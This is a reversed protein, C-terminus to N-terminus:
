APAAASENAVPWDLQFTAGQGLVSTVEVRGGHAQTLHKVISLGLGSGGADRSRDKHVRYFREFIHPLDSQPIGPGTDAIRVVVREGAAEASVGIRLGTPPGYKLANELLNFLVQDLRGPDAALPPLDPPLQAVVAAQKEAITPELREVVRALADALPVPSIELGGRGHEFRSITLLDEVLANLRLGHKQMVSLARQTLAEDDLGDPELLTELYGNLIALPTRLEHSVNAVFERRVAELNKLETIDHLVLIAGMSRAQDPPRLGVATLDFHKRAYRSDAGRVDLEVVRATTEGAIARAVADRIDANRFVELVSRGSPPSRLDFMRVLRANASRIAQHEDVILVGESLSELITRLNRTEDALQHDIAADLEIVRALDTAAGRLPGALARLRHSEVPKGEALARLAQRLIRWPGLVAGRFWIAGVLLLILGFGALLWSALDSGPPATLM